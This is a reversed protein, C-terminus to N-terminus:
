FVLMRWSKGFPVPFFESLHAQSSPLSMQARLVVTKCFTSDASVILHKLRYFMVVSGWEWGRCCSAGHFEQTRGKPLYSKAQIISRFFTGKAILCCIPFFMIHSLIYWTLSLPNPRWRHVNAFRDLFETSANQLYCFLM